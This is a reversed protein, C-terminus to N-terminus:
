AGNRARQSCHGELDGHGVYARGPRCSDAAADDQGVRETGGIAGTAASRSRLAVARVPLARWAMRCAGTRVAVSPGDDLLPRCRPAASQARAPEKQLQGPGNKERSLLSRFAKRVVSDSSRIAAAARNGM